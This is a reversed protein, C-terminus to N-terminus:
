SALFLYRDQKTFNTIQMAINLFENENKNIEDKDKNIYYDFLCWSFISVNQVFNPSRKYVETCIELAEKVKGVKRLSSSYRWSDWNDFNANEKGWIVKYLDIVGKYNGQKRYVEAKNSIERFKTIEKVEM